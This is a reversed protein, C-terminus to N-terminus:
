QIQFLRAAAQLRMVYSIFLGGGWRFSISPAPGALKSASTARNSSCGSPSAAHSSSLRSRRRTIGAALEDNVQTLGLSVPRVFSGSVVPKGYIPCCKLLSRRGRM